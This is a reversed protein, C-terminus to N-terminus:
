KYAQKRIPYLIWFLGFFKTELKQNQKTQIYKSNLWIKKGPAYSWPKVGKDYARKQLEQAHLPNQQCIEILKRLEKALENASRSRSRPDIDDEFSVRPYFGCNLKFPTYGTSANKANNYAFEGM